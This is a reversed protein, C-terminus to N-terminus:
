NGRMQYYRTNLIHCQRTYSAFYLQLSSVGPVLQIRHLRHGSQQGGQRLRVLPQSPHHAGQATAPVEQHLKRDHPGRLQRTQFYYQRTKLNVACM